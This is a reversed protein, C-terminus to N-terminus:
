NQKVKVSTKKVYRPTAVVVPVGGLRRVDDGESTEDDKDSDREGGFSDASKMLLMGLAWAAKKRVEIDPDKLLDKLASAARTDGKLGLAWAAMGRIKGNSDRLLSILPEVSRSDGKLGLAWAAKERVDANEDRLTAILPEISRTDGVLGLAWAAQERVRFEPDKLASILEDIGKSGGHLGLGWAAKARIQWNQDKLAEVLTTAAEPDGIQTLAFLAHQRVESDEDKLAERLAEIATSKETQQTSTATASSEQNETEEGAVPESIDALLHPAVATLAASNNAQSPSSVGRASDLETTTENGAEVATETRHAKATLRMTALPFVMLVIAGAVLVAASRKLGRRKLDPDLIALLRGELESRRAIAVAALSSCKTSRFKRAMELLHGAYDSAKTGIHIVQDDCAREREIRLQRSAIWVLPIFWYVSCAIQALMQTLCDRRKVHALEHILVVQRRELPWEDSDAPLLIAANVLGCTVPMSLRTTKLLQVPRMLGLQWAIDNAANLWRTDVVKEARRAIWWINATGVLLRGIILISVTLWSLLLWGIWGPRSAAVVNRAETNSDDISDARSEISAAAPQTASRPSAAASNSKATLSGPIFRDTSTPFSNPIPQASPLVAIRWVPLSISLLPLALVGAIALTWVFHRAAASAHRLTLSLGAAVGLVLIAKISIAILQETLLYDQSWSLL